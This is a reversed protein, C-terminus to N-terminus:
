GAKICDISFFHLISQWRIYGSKEYTEKAWDDLEVRKEVQAIVDRGAAQGGNEKLIQLAAYIVKAALQRSRSLQASSM